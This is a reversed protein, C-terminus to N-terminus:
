RDEVCQTYVWEVMRAAEEKSDAHGHTATKFANVNRHANMAWTWENERPGHQVKMIRGIGEGLLTACFDAPVPGRGFDTREWEAAVRSGMERIAIAAAEKTPHDSAISGDRVVQYRNGTPEYRLRITIRPENM